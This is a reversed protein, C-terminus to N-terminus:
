APGYKRAKEPVHQAMIIDTWYRIDENQPQWMVVFGGGM